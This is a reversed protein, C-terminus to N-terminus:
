VLVVILRASLAQLQELVEQVEAVWSGDRGIGTHRNQCGSPM